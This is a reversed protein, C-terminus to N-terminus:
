QASGFAQGDAKFAGSQAAWKDFLAPNNKLQLLATAIHESKPMEKEAAYFCTEEYECKPDTVDRMRRVYRDRVHFRTTGVDLVYCNGMQTAGTLAIIRRLYTKACNKPTTLRAGNSGNEARNDAIVAAGALHLIRLGQELIRTQQQHPAAIERALPGRRLGAFVFKWAFLALFAIVSLVASTM